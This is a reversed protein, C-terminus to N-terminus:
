AFRVQPRTALPVIFLAEAEAFVMRRGDMGPMLSEIMGVVFHKRGEIKTTRAEVRILSGPPLIVHFETRLYKTYAPTCIEAFAEDFITSILGGHVAGPYFCIASSDALNIIKSQGQGRPHYLPTSLSRIGAM